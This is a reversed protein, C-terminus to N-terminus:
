KSPPAPLVGAIADGVTEAVLRAAETSMHSYGETTTVSSHGLAKSVSMLTSGADAAISAFSHRLSHAVLKEGSADAGDLGAATLIAQWTARVDGFPRSPDDGPFVYKSGDIRPLGQLLQIAASSLPVQRRAPAGRRAGKHDSLWLVRKDLDVRDWELNFVERRRLGTLLLFALGSIAFHSHTKAARVTDFAEALKRVDELDLRRQRKALKPLEVGLMPQCTAPVIGEKRAWGFCASLIRGAQGAVGRGGLARARGRNSGDTRAPLTASMKGAALRDIFASVDQRSLRAADLDGLKPNIHVRVVSEYLEITRAKTRHAVHEALWRGMLAAVTVKAGRLRRGEPSAGAPDSLGTIIRMAADRATTATWGSVGDVGITRNIRKGAFQKRVGYTVTPVRRGNVMRGAQCRAYFGTLKDDRLITGPRLGKVSTSNIPGDIFTEKSRM